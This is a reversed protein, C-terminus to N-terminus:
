AFRKLRNVVIRVYRYVPVKDRMNWWLYSDLEHSRIHPDGYAEVLCIKHTNVVGRFDYERFRTVRASRLSLEEYLERKVADETTEKKNLGGGPLSYHHRGRDRVLLVKKDRFVVATARQRTYHRHKKYKKDITGTTEMWTTPAYFLRKCRQCRYRPLLLNIFLLWKMGEIERFHGSKCHPCRDVFHTNGGNPMQKYVEFMTITDRKQM